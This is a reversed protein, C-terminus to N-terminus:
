AAPREIVAFINARFNRLADFRNVAREYALGALFLVRSAVTYSPEKEVLDISRIRFGAATACDRIACMTNMRYLTPYPEPSGFPLRRLRNAARIHFWHPTLASVAIVYHYLNPTRLVYVGGPRLVRFVERLHSSPDVVHEVVYNSVVADFRKDRFPFTPGTLEHFSHLFPNTRAALDCDLGHTRGLSALFKSTPNSPGPGVELIDQGNGVMDACLAHFM